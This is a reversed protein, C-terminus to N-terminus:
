PAPVTEVYFVYDFWATMGYTYLGIQGDPFPSVSNTVPVPAGAEAICSLNSTGTRPRTDGVRRAQGIVHIRVNMVATSWAAAANDTINDDLMATALIANSNSSANHQVGCLFYVDNGGWNTPGFGHTVQAGRLASGGDAPSIGDVIIMSDIYHEKKEGKLLFQM